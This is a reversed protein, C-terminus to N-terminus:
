PSTSAFGSSAADRASVSEVRTARSIGLRACLLRENLRAGPALRGQVIEDRLRDVAKEHLPRRDIPSVGQM